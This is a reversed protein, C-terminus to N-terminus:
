PLAQSATHMYIWSAALQLLVPLMLQVQEISLETCSGLVQTSLQFPDLNPGQVSLMGRLRM